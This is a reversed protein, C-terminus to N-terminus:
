VDIDLSTNRVRYCSDAGIKNQIRDQSLTVTMDCLSMVRTMNLSRMMMM